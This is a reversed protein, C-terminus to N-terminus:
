RIMKREKTFAVMRSCISRRFADIAKLETKMTTTIRKCQKELLEKFDMSLRYLFSTFKEPVDTTCRESYLHLCHRYKDFKFCISLLEELLFETRNRSRCEKAFVADM